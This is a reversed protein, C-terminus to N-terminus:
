NNGKHLIPPPPLFKITGDQDQILFIPNSYAATEQVLLQQSPQQVVPTTLIPEQLHLLEPPTAPATKRSSAVSGGRQHRKSVITVRSDKLETIQQKLQQIEAKQGNAEKLQEEWRRTTKEQIELRNQLIKMQECQWKFKANINQLNKILVLNISEQFNISAESGNGNIIVDSIRKRWCFPNVWKDGSFSGALTDLWIIILIRYWLEVIYNYNYNYNYNHESFSPDGKFASVIDGALLHSPSLQNDIMTQTDPNTLYEPDHSNLFQWSDFVLSMLRYYDKASDPPTIIPSTTATDPPIQHDTESSDDFNKDAGRLYAIAGWDAIPMWDKKEIKTSHTKLKRFGLERLYRIRKEVEKKSSPVGTLIDKAQSELKSVLTETSLHGTGLHEFVKSPPKTRGAACVQQYGLLCVFVTFQLLRQFFKWFSNEM